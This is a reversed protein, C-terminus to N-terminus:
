NDGSPSGRGASSPQAAVETNPNANSTPRRSRVASATASPRSGSIAGIQIDEAAIAAGRRTGAQPRGPTEGASKVLTHALTRRGPRAECHPSLRCLEEATPARRLAM